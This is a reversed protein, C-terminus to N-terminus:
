FIKEIYAKVHDYITFSIGIGIPGQMHSVVGGRAVGCWAVGCAMADTRACGSGQDLEYVRGQLVRAHGGHAM